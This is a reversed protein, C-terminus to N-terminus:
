QYRKLVKDNVAFWFADKYISKMKKVLISVITHYIKDVEEDKLKHDIEKIKINYLEFDMKLQKNVFRDLETIKRKIIKNSFVYVLREIYKEKKEKYEIERRCKSYLNKVQLNSFDFHFLFSANYMKELGIVELAMEELKNVWKNCAYGHKYGELYFCLELRNIDEHLVISLNHAIIDGDERNKLIYKIKRRIENKCMYKPYINAINEELDYLALLIYISNLDNQFLFKNKLGEYMDWMNVSATDMLCDRGSAITVM